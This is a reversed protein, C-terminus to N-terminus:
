LRRIRHSPTAVRPYPNPLNYQRSVETAHGEVENWKRKAGAAPAAPAGKGGAARADAETFPIWDDFEPGEFTPWVLEKGNPLAEGKHLAIYM